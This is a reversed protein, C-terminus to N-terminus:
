YTNEQRVCCCQLHGPGHPRHAIYSHSQQSRSSQWYCHLATGHATSQTHGTNGATELPVRRHPLASLYDGYNMECILVIILWVQYKIIQRTSKWISFSDWEEERWLKFSSFITFMVELHEKGRATVLTTLTIPGWEHRDLDPIQPTTHVGSLSVVM